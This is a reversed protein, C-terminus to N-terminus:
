RFEVLCRVESVIGKDIERTDKRAYVSEVVVNKM